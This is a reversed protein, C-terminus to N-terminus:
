DGLLRVNDVSVGGEAMKEAVLPAAALTGALRVQDRASRMSIQTEDALWAEMSTAGTDRWVEVQEAAHVARAIEAELRTACRRLDVVVTAVDTGSLARFDTAACQALATKFATIVQHTM